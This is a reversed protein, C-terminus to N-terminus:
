HRFTRSYCGPHAPSIGRHQAELNTKWHEAEAYGL